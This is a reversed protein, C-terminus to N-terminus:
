HPAGSRTNGTTEIIKKIQHEEMMITEMAEKKGKEM